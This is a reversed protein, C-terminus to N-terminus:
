AVALDRPRLFAVLEASGWTLDRWLGAAVRLTALAGTPYKQALTERLGAPGSGALGEALRWIGDNHGILLVTAVEESLARLRGLLVDEPALYLANELAM